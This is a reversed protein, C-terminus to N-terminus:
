RDSGVMEIFLEELPVRVCRTGNVGLSANLQREVTEPAGEFVAHWDDFVPRANLCGPLRELTQTDPASGRPLMAVCVEERLRDLDRDLRVKGGDLLVVRGGIREVDTMHHSSFLISTGERNLM